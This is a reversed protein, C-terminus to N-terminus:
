KLLNILTKLDSIWENITKSYEILKEKDKEFGQLLKYQHEWYHQLNALLNVSVDPVEDNNIQDKIIKFQNNVAEATIKMYKKFDRLVWQKEFINRTKWGNYQEIFSDIIKLLLMNISLNKPKKSTSIFSKKSTDLFDNIAQISSIEQGNYESAKLISLAFGIGADTVDLIHNENQNYFEDLTIGMSQAVDKISKKATDTKVLGPAITYTYVNSEELELALANSFEVQATKFTEYASLYPAAGSSSVFIISGSNRKKMLKIFSTTLLVPAKLNVKYSYDFDDISYDGIQGTVVVTANNFIVDPSGYKFTIQKVLKRIAKENGLDINFFFSKNPYLDNILKNAKLGKEKNIEIILVIAGMSACSKATEFGIGGGAGTILVIKNELAKNNLTINMIRKKKGILKVGL